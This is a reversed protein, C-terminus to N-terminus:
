LGKMVLVVNMDKVSFMVYYIWTSFSFLSVFSWRSSRAPLDGALGSNCTTSSLRANCLPAFLNLHETHSSRWLRRKTLQVHFMLHLFIAVLYCWDCLNLTTFPLYSLSRLQHIHVLLGPAHKSVILYTCFLLHWECRVYRTFSSCIYLLSMVFM